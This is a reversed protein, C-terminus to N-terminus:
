GPSTQSAAQSSIRSMRSTTRAQLGQEHKSVESVTRNATGVPLLAPLAEAPPLGLGNRGEPIGRAAAGEEDLAARGRGTGCVTRPDSVM